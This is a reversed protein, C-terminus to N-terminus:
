RQDTRQQNLSEPRLWKDQYRIRNEEYMTVFDPRTRFMSPLTGSHDVVCGDWVALQWGHQMARHCLDFDDYGYGSFQEDMTGIADLMSRRVFVCVFALPRLTYRLVPQQGAIQCANAVLGRVGVSCIGITPHQRMEAALATFGYDTELTADDNLLMVDSDGAESLGLNVNRSFVFPREGPIWTVPPLAHEAAARIGDEVVLIDAPQLAPEHSCLAQVCATLNTANGSPIIIKM